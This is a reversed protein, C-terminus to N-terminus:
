AGLLEDYAKPTAYGFGDLYGDRTLLERAREVAATHEGKDGLAGAVIVVLLARMYQSEM